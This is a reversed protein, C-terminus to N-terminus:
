ASTLRGDVISSSAGARQALRLMGVSCAAGFATTIGLTVAFPWGIFIEASQLYEITFLVLPLCLASLAGWLGFRTPSLEHLSRRREAGVLVLAFVLGVVLGWIVFMATTNLIIPIAPPREPGVNIDAILDGPPTRFYRLVGMAIGLPTWLIGWIVVAGAVGRM